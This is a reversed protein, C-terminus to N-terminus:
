NTQAPLPRAQDALLVPIGDTIPFALPQDASTNRLEPNGQEDTGDVLETGTVPCRLLERLWPTIEASM